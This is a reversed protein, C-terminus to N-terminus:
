LGAWNIWAPQPRLRESAASAGPVTIVMVSQGERVPISACTPRTWFITFEAPRVTRPVMAKFEASSSGAGVFRYVRMGDHQLTEATLHIKPLSIRIRKKDAGLRTPWSGAKTM